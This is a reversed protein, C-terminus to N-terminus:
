KKQVVQIAGSAHGIGYKQTAETPTWYRIEVIQERAVTKLNDAAGLRMEGLYTVLDTAGGSYSTGQGRTRLMSPRLNMVLDWATLFTAPAAAIEEATIVNM